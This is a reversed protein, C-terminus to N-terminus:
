DNECPINSDLIHKWIEREKQLDAVKEQLKLAVASISGNHMDYITYILTRIDLILGVALCVRDFIVYLRASGFLKTFVKAIWGPKAAFQEIGILAVQIVDWGSCLLRKGLNLISYLCLAFDTCNHEKLMHCAQKLKKWAMAVYSDQQDMDSQEEEILKRIELSVSDFHKLKMKVKEVQANDKDIADQAEKLLVNSLLIKLASAGTTVTGGLAAATSGGITLVLSGGLTVPVLAIGVISAVGGLIGVSSGVVKAINVNLHHKNLEDIISKLHKITQERMRCLEGLENVLDEHSYCAEELLSKFTNSVSSMKHSGFSTM